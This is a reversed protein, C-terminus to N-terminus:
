RFNMVLQKAKTGHIHIRHCLQKIMMYVYVLKVWFTISPVLFCQRAVRNDTREGKLFVELKAVCLTHYRNILWHDM